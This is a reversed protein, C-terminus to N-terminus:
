FDTDTGWSQEEKELNNQINTPGKLDRILKLIPKETAAFVTMLIKIPIISLMCIVKPLMLMKVM